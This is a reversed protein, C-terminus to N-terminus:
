YAFTIYRELAYAIGDSNNDLTVTAYKEKIEQPANGMVIPFAVASLMELDNYNDGFAVTQELLIENRECFEQVASAKSIGQPLLELLIDSSKTISFDPFALKMGRQIEDITEHDCILLVKGAVEDKDLADYGQHTPKAEVISAEKRIKPDSMSRVIWKNASYICWSAPINNAEVYQVIRKAQERSMGREALVEHDSNLIVAGGLAIISCHLGYRNVIPMIGSVGRSSTLVLDNGRDTWKQLAELTRKSIRHQSNLLTGDIDSFIVKYKEM